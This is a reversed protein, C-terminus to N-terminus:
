KFLETEWQPMKPLPQYVPIATRGPFHQKLALIGASTVKLTDLVQKHIKVPRDKIKQLLWQEVKNTDNEKLKKTRLIDRMSALAKLHDSWLRNQKKVYATKQLSLKKAQRVIIEDDLVHKAALLMSKRFAGRTEFSVPYPAVGIRQLLTKATWNKKNHFAVVPFDMGEWKKNQETLYESFLRIRGSEDAGSGFVQEETLHLMQKFADKSLRYGKNKLHTQFYHTFAQQSKVARLVKKLKDASAKFDQESRFLEDQEGTKRLIFYRNGEKILTSVQGEKLHFAVQQINPLSGDFSLTDTPINQITLGSLEALQFFDYGKDLRRKQRLAQESSNFVLYQVIIKRKSNNYAERLEKSSITVTKLIEEQWFAEILAERNYQSILQNVDAPIAKLRQAMVKEAVMTSLLRKKAEERSPFTELYPNFEFATKFEDVTIHADGIDALYKEPETKTCTFFLSLILVFIVKELISNIKM